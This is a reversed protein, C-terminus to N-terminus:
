KNGWNNYLNKSYADERCDDLEKQTLRLETVLRQVSRQLHRLQERNDYPVNGDTGVIETHLELNKFCCCGGNTGMGGKARIISFVCSNDGCGPIFDM